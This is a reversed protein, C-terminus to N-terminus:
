TVTDIGNSSGRAPSPEVAAVVAPGEDLSFVAGPGLLFSPHFSSVSPQDLDAKRVVPEVPAEQQTGKSGTAGPPALFRVQYRPWKTTDVTVQLTLGGTVETIIHGELAGFCGCMWGAEACSKSQMKGVWLGVGFNDGGATELSDTHWGVQNNLGPTSAQFKKGCELVKLTFYYTGQCQAGEEPKPSGPQLPVELGSAACPDSSNGCTVTKGDNSFTPTQAAIYRSAKEFQTLKWDCAAGGDSGGNGGCGALIFACLAVVSACLPNWVNM